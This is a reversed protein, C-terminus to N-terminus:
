AAGAKSAASRLAGEGTGGDHSGLYAVGGPCLVRMVEELSLGKRQLEALRDVVLLNVLDDAYPLRAPSVHDVSVKGYVGKAQINLRAAELGKRDLCLAHVLNRGGASLEAALSGDGCGLHVVLGPRVGEASLIQGALAKVSRQRKKHGPPVGGDGFPGQQAMCVAAPVLVAVSAALGASLVAFLAARKRFSRNM